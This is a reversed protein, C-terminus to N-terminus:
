STMNESNEMMNIFVETLGPDFYKGSEEMMECLIQKINEPTIENMMSRKNDYTEALAIIRANLPIEHGKLGKPYGSGDWKEHHAYVDDALDLTHDFLKLIKYGVVTHQMLQQQEHETLGEKKNLLNNEIVIKGIDHLLGADLLKKIEPQPLGL